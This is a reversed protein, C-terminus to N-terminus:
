PNADEVKVKITYIVEGSDPLDLSISNGPAEILVLGDNSVAILKINVGKITRATDISATLKNAKGDDPPANLVPKDGDQKSADIGLVYCEFSTFEGTPEGEKVTLTGEGDCALYKGDDTWSIKNDALSDQDLKFTASLANINLETDKTIGITAGDNANIAQEITEYNKGDDTKAGAAILKVTGAEYALALNKIENGALDLVGPISEPKSALGTAFVQGEETANPIKITAGFKIKAASLVDANVIAGDAIAVSGADTMKDTNGVILRKNKINITGTFGSIDGFKIIQTCAGTSDNFTGSGSLKAFSHMTNDRSYGNDNYWADTHELYPTDNDVLVLEWPITLASADSNPLSAYVGTFQVKSNGNGWNVMDSSIETGVHGKSFSGYNKIIITGKWDSASLQARMDANPIEGEPLAITAEGKLTSAAINTIKISGTGTISASADAVTLSAITIDSNLEITAGTPIEVDSSSVPVADTNWNGPTNWNKDGVNGTWVIKTMPVVWIEMKKVEYANVAFKTYKTQSVFDSWDWTNGNVGIDGGANNRHTSFSGIGLDMATDCNFNNVAFVTEAAFKTFTDVTEEGTYRFVQMGGKLTGAATELTDNWGKKGSYIDNPYGGQDSGTWSWPTFEVIGTQTTDVVGNDDIATNTVNARNAYVQLNTVKAKHAGAAITPVSLNSLKTNFAEMSVWVFQSPENARKLELYYGVRKIDVNKLAANEDEITPGNGQWNDGSGINDTITGNSFTVTGYRQFGERYAKDINAEAGTGQIEVFDSSLEAANIESTDASLTATYVGGKLTTGDPITFRMVRKDDTDVAGDTFTLNVDGGDVNKGVLTLTATASDELAKSFRVVIKGDVGNHVHVMKTDGDVIEDIATAMFGMFSKAVRISGVENPHLHDTTKFYADAYPGFKNNVDVLKVNALNFPSAIQTNKERLLTNYTDIYGRSGGAPLLTSVLIKSNPRMKAIKKVMADMSDYINAASPNGFSLDNVGLLITIVDPYGAVQLTNEVDFLAGGHTGNSDHAIVGGYQAAHWAWDCNDPEVTTSHGTRYGVSRVSMGAATLQSYLQYRYGGRSNGDGQNPHGMDREGETISDGIPLWIMTDSLKKGKYAVKHTEPDYKLAGGDGTTTVYDYLSDDAFVFPTSGIVSEDLDVVFEVNDGLDAADTVTITGGQSVLSVGSVNGSITASSTVNITADDDSSNVIAGTSTLTTVTTTQGNVDLTTGVGVTTNAAVAKAAGMKWTGADILLTPINFEGTMKVTGVGTKHITTKAFQAGSLGFTGSILLDYEEGAGDGVNINRTYPNDSYSGHWNAAFEAPANEGNGGDYVISDTITNGYFTVNGGMITTAAVGGLTIPKQTLFGSGNTANFTYAGNLNLTGDTIILETGTNVGSRGYFFNSNDFKLTGAGIKTLKGFGTISTPSMTLIAGDAADFTSNAAFELAGGSITQTATAGYIGNLVIKNNASQEVGGATTWTKGTAIEATVSEQMIIKGAGNNIVLGSPIAGAIFINSNHENDNNTYDTWDRAIFITSKNGATDLIFSGAFEAVDPFFHRRTPAGSPKALVYSGTGTVKRFQVRDASWGDTIKLGFDYSDNVLDITPLVDLYARDGTAQDSQKFYGAVGSLRIMSNENGFNNPNFLALGSVGKIWATGTWTDAQLQEQITSAPLAGEFVITAKGTLTSDALNGIKISGTGTISASADQIDLSVVYVDDDLTIKANAPIVVDSADTPVGASWNEADNWNNDKTGTWTTSTKEVGYIDISMIEYASANVKELTATQTYDISSNSMKQAFSGIGIENNNNSTWRNFAFLVEGANWSEGPKFIRHVQMSGYVSTSRTDNWDCDYLNEPAGAIGSATGSYSYPWFEVFGNASNDTPEIIRIGTDNSYVHLANVVQQNVKATPVGFDAIKGDGFAAMDVWLFRVHNHYDVLDTNRRKLVVYYGVKAFVTDVKESNFYTYDSATLATGSTHKKAATPTYSALKTFNKYYEEPVNTEIETTTTYTVSGEPTFEIAMVEKIKALWCDSTKDHGTWTPHLSDAYNGSEAGESDHTPCASNLDALYVRGEPFDGHEIFDAIKANFAHVKTNLAANNPADIVTGCIIRTAPRVKLIKWVVNSWAEFLTDANGVGGKLDNTGIKFTVIDPEGAMDLAVDISDEWGAAGKTRCMQGSMGCHWEYKPDAQVGAADANCTKQYGLAEVNFGNAALKKMLPIRYNPRAFDDYKNTGETISDGLPMVKISTAQNDYDGVKLVLQWQGSAAAAECTLTYGSAASSFGTVVIGTTNIQEGTWTALVFKGLTCTSYNVLEITAGSMLVPTGSTILLPTKNPDIQLKATPGLFMTSSKVGGVGTLTETGSLRSIPTDLTKANTIETTRDEDTGSPVLTIKKEDVDVVAKFYTEGVTGDTKKAIIRECLVEEDTFGTAGEGIKLITAPSDTTPFEAVVVMAGSNITPKAQLILLTDADAADLTGNLTMPSILTGKGGITGDIQIGNTAKWSQGQLTVTAGGNVFVKGQNGDGAKKITGFTLAKNVLEVDGTFDTWDKILFGATSGGDALLKGNGTVIEFTYVSADGSSGNKINLAYSNGDTPELNLTGSFTGGAKMYGSINSCRVTSNANAYEGFDINTLGTKNKLWVTGTWVDAKYSNSETTSPLKGDYVVVGSGSISGTISGANNVTGNITTSIAAWTKGSSIKAVKDAEILLKGGDGTGGITGSGVVVRKGYRDGKCLILEGSFDEISGFKWLEACKAGSGDVSSLDLTGSGLLCKFVHVNSSGGSSDRWGLYNTSEEGYMEIAYDFNGNGNIYGNCNTFRVVSDANGWSKMDNYEAFKGAGGAAGYNKIWVTGTWAAATYCNRESNTPLAADYIIIGSGTIGGFTKGNRDITINEPIDLVEPTDILLKITKEAGDAAAVAAAVTEYEEGDMEASKVIAYSVTRDNFTLNVLHKVDGIYAYRMGDTAGSLIGTCLTFPTNEALTSPFKITAGAAVDLTGEGGVAADSSVTVSTLDLTETVKLTKGTAIEIAGANYITLNRTANIGDAISCDLILKGGNVTIGNFSNNNNGAIASKLTVTGTGGKVFTASTSNIRCPNCDPSTLISKTYDTNITVTGEFTPWGFNEFSGNEGINITSNKVKAGDGLTITGGDIQITTCDVAYGSTKNNVTLQAAGTKIFKGAGSIGNITMAQDVNVKLKAGDDITFNTYPMTPALVSTGSITILGTTELTPSIEDDVLSNYAYTIPNSGADIDIVEGLTLVSIPLASTIVGGNYGEDATIAVSGVGKFTIGWAVIGDTSAFQLLGSESEAVTIEALTNEDPSVGGDWNIHEWFGSWEGPTLTATAIKPMVVAEVAAYTTRTANNSEIAGGSNIASFQASGSIPYSQGVIVEVPESFTYTELKTFQANDGINTTPDAIDSEVKTAVNGNISITAPWSKGSPSGYIIKTIAVKSGTPLGTKETLTLNKNDLTYHSTRAAVGDLNSWTVVTGPKASVPEFSFEALEAASLMKDFIAIRTIKMGACPTIAYGSYRSGHRAPGGIAARNLATSTAKLDPHGWYIKFYNGGDNLYFYAGTNGSHDQSYAFFHEGERTTVMPYSVKARRNAAKEWWGSSNIGTIEKTSPIVAAGVLDEYDATASSGLTVFCLNNATTDDASLNEYGVLITPAKLSFGTLKVGYDQTIQLYSNDEAKYNGNLDITIGDKTLESFDGNWVAVPTPADAWASGTIFSAALAIAAVFLSRIKQMM